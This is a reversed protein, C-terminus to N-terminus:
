NKADATISERYLKVARKIETDYLRKKDAGTIKAEIEKFVTATLKLHKVRKKKKKKLPRTDGDSVLVFDRDEVTIIVYLRGKDRGQRSETLMGPRPIAELM